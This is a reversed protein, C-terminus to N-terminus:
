PAFILKWGRWKATQIWSLGKNARTRYAFFDYAYRKFDEMIERCIELSTMQYSVMFILLLLKLKNIVEQVMILDLVPHDSFLPGGKIFKNLEISKKKLTKRCKKPSFWFLWNFAVKRKGWPCQYLVQVYMLLQLFRFFNTM